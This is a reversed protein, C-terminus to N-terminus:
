KYHPKLHQYIRDLTNEKSFGGRRRMLTSIAVVFKQCLEGEGQTREQIEQKLKQFLKSTPITVRFRVRLGCVYGM